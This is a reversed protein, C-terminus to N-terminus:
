SLYFIPLLMTALSLQDVKFAKSPLYAEVRKCDDINWDEDALGGTQLVEVGISM